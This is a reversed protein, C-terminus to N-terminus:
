LLLYPRCRQGISIWLVRTNLSSNRGIEASLLFVRYFITLVVLYWHVWKIKVIFFYLLILLHFLLEYVLLIQSFLLLFRLGFTWKRSAFVLVLVYLMNNILFFLLSIQELFKKLQILNFCDLVFHLNLAFFVWIIQELGFFGLLLFDSLLFYLKRFLLTVESVSHHLPDLASVWFLIPLWIKFVLDEWFWIRYFRHLVLVFVWESWILYFHCGLFKSSFQWVEFEFFL